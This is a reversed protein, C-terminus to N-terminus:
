KPSNSNWMALWVAIFDWLASIDSIQTPLGSAVSTTWSHLADKRQFLQSPLNVPFHGVAQLPWGDVDVLCAYRSAACSLDLLMLCFGSSKAAINDSSSGHWHQGCGVRCPQQHFWGRRNVASMLCLHKWEGRWGLCCGAIGPFVGSLSLVGMEGSCGGKVEGEGTEWEEGRQCSNWFSSCRLAVIPGLSTQALNKWSCNIKWILESSGLHM